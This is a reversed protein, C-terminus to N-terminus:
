RYLFVYQNGNVYCGGPGKPLVDRGSAMFWYRVTDCEYPDYFRAVYPYTVSAAGVPSAAATSGSDASTATAAQAPVVAVGAILVAAALARKVRM